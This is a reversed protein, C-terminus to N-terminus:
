KSCQATNSEIAKDRSEKICLLLALRTSARTTDGALDFQLVPPGEVFEGCLPNPIGQPVASSSGEHPEAVMYGTRSFPTKM